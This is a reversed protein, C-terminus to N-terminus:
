GTINKIELAKDEQRHKILAHTLSSKGQFVGCFSEVPDDPLPTIIVRGSEAKVALKKGPSIGLQKRIERPIVIQGRNSTTIVNM